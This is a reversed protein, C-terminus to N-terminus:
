SWQYGWSVRSVRPKAGLRRWLALGLYVRGFQRVREVRVGRIDVKRWQPAPAAAAEGLILQKTTARGELMAALDEWGRAAAVEERDLKGLQAVTQHRPGRATQVTKVLTWYEYTEGGRHRRHRKLFM